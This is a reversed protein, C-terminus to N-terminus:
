PQAKRRKKHALDDRNCLYEKPRLAIHALRDALRDAMNRVMNQNTDFDKCGAVSCNDDKNHGPNNSREALRIDAYRAVGLRLIQDFLHGLHFIIFQHFDSGELQPYGSRQQKARAKWAIGIKVILSSKVRGVQWSTHYFIWRRQYFNRRWNIALLLIVRRLIILLRVCHRRLIVLLLLCRRRVILILLAHWIRSRAIIRIRIRNRRRPIIILRAIVLILM